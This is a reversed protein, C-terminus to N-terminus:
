RSYLEESLRYWLNFTVDPMEYDPHTCCLLVTDLVPISFHPSSPPSAVMRTLFSEGTETFIRYIFWFYFNLNSLSKNRSIYSCSLELSPSVLLLDVENPVLVLITINLYISVQKQDLFFVLILFELICKSSLRDGFIM